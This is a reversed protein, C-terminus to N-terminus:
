VVSSILDEERAHRVQVQVNMSDFGGGRRLGRVPPVDDYDRGVAVKIHAESILCGNTPDFGVWGSGPIFAEIWAHSGESGVLYEDGYPNSHVYGSVYRVPIGENRCLALMAHAYDQCVGTKTRAFDRLPTDVTTSNPQYTFSARLYQTLDQLYSVLEYTPALPHVAFLELWNENLSIRKTPALYEFFRHRLEPLISASCSHPLPIAYTSVKSLAKIRLEQHYHAKHFHHTMNGFYDLHNRLHTGPEVTLDFGILTQRYDDAPRLRLENFSDWADVSYVYETLHEVTLLM